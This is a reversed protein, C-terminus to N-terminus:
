YLDSSCKESMEYAKGVSEIHPALDKLADSINNFEAEYNDCFNKAIDKLTDIAHEINDAEKLEDVANLLDKRKM